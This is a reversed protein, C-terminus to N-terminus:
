FTRVSSSVWYGVRRLRLQFIAWGVARCFVPRSLIFIQTEKSSWIGNFELLNKQALLPDMKHHWEQGSLWLLPRLM